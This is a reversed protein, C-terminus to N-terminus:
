PRRKLYGLEQLRRNSADDYPAEALAKRIWVERRLTLEDEHVDEHHLTFVDRPVTPALVIQEGRGEVEDPVRTIDLVDVIGMAEAYIHAGGIFFIDPREARKVADDISRAVIAGEIEDMTNTVVINQRGALPNGISEYTVRGMIVTAGTTVRKFRRLDGSYKWPIKGDVGIIGMANEAWISCKM